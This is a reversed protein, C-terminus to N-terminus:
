RQLCTRGRQLGQRATRNRSDKWARYAEPLCVGCPRYGAAIAEDPSAFFVRNERRMRKGSPCDLRGYIKLRANGAAHIRKARILARLEDPNVERHAIM